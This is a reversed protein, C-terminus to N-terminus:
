LKEIYENAYQSVEKCDFEKISNGESTARIVKYDDSFPHNAMYNMEDASYIGVIKKNFMSAFHIISTDPSIILDFNKILSITEFISSVKVLTVNKDINGNLIDFQKSLAVIVLNCNELNINDLIDNVKKVSLTRSMVSGETNFYINKKDNKKYSKYYDNYEKPIEIDKTYKKDTINFIDLFELNKSIIHKTKDKGYIKLYMNELEENSFSHKRYKDMGVTYKANIIKMRMLTNSLRNEYMDLVLDYDNKRLMLLTKIANIKNNRNNVFYNDINNNCKALTYNSESCYIDITLDPYYKKILEILPFTFLMDGIRDYRTILIKKVNNINFDENNNKSLVMRKFISQKIAKNTSLGGKKYRKYDRWYSFNNQLRNLM